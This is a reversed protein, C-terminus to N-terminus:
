GVSVISNNGLQQMLNNVEKQRESFIKAAQEVNKDNQKQLENELSQLTIYYSLAFILSSLLMILTLSLLYRIVSSERKLIANGHKSKYM